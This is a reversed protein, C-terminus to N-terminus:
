NNNILYNNTFIAVKLFFYRKILIRLVLLKTLNGQKTSLNHRHGIHAYSNANDLM